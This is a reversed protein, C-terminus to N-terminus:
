EWVYVFGLAGFSVIKGDICGVLFVVFNKRYLADLVVAKTASKVSDGAFFLLVDGFFGHDDQSVYENWGKGIVEGVANRHQEIGPNFLILLLFVIVGALVHM